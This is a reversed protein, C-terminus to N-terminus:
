QKLFGQLITQQELQEIANLWKITDAKLVKFDIESDFNSYVRHNMQDDYTFLFWGRMCCENLRDLIDNPINFPAKKKKNEKPEKPM